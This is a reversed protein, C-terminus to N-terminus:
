QQLGYMLPEKQNIALEIERLSQELAAVEDMRKGARAQEIYSLLQQKQLLFPDDGTDVFDKNRETIWGSDQVGRDRELDVSFLDKKFSVALKSSAMKDIFKDIGSREGGATGIPTPGGAVGAASQAERQRRLERQREIEKVREMAEREKRERLERLQVNTPLASLTLMNEQLYHSTYRRINQGLKRGRM